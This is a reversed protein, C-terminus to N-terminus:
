KFIGKKKSKGKIKEKGTLTAKYAELAKTQEESLKSPVEIIVTIYLDGRINKNRITPMGKGKLRM